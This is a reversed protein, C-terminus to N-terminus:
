LSAMVVDRINPGDLYDWINYNADKFQFREFILFYITTLLLFGNLIRIALRYGAFADMEDEDATKNLNVDTFNL